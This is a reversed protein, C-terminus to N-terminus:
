VSLQGIARARSREDEQDCILFNKKQSLIRLDANGAFCKYMGELHNGNHSSVDDYKTWVVQAHGDAESAIKQGAQMALAETDFVGALSWEAGELPWRQELIYVVAPDVKGKFQADLYLRASQEDTVIYRGGRKEALGNSKLHNAITEPIVDYFEAVKRAYVLAPLQNENNM